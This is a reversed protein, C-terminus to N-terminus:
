EVTIASVPCGEEAEKASDELEEPVKGTIAVAKGDDDMSFVDPCTSPCLGCSVCVDKDVVAKM